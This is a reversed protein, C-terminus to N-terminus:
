PKRWEEGPPVVVCSNELHRLVMAGQFTELDKTNPSKSWGFTGWHNPIVYRSKLDSAAEAAQQPTLHIRNRWPCSSMSGIPLLAVDVSVTNGIEKFHTGMRTDGAFYVTTTQASILFGCVTRFRFPLWRGGKHKAPVATIALGSPLTFRTWWHLEVIPNQIAHRLAGAMGEPVIVPVTNPIYKFSDINLHDPHAHSICVADLKPLQVPDALLSRRPWVFCRKKFNPDTLVYHGDIGILQTSHGFNRVLVSTQLQEQPATM